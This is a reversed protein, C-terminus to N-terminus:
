YSTRAWPGNYPAVGTGGRNCSISAGTDSPCILSEIRTARLDAHGQYTSAAVNLSYRPDFKKFLAAQDLNPLLSLYMSGAQQTMRATDGGTNANPALLPTWPSVDLRYLGGPPLVQASDHYNHIAVGIQKLNNRCQSRRAAERAQQVAPLLLAILIAIIAIVVLLEILTFGSRRSTM